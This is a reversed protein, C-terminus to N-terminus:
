PLYKKVILQASEIPDDPNELSFMYFNNNNVMYIKNISRKYVFTVTGLYTRVNIIDGNISQQLITGYNSINSLKSPKNIDHCPHMLKNDRCYDIFPWTDARCLNNVIIVPRSLPQVIPVINCSVKMFLSVGNRVVCIDNPQMSARSLLEKIFIESAKSFDKSVLLLDYLEHLEMYPMVVTLTDTNM